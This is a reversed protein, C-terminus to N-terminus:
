AGGWVSLPEPITDDEDWVLEDVVSVVGDLALTLRV